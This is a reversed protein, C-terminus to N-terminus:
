PSPSPSHEIMGSPAPSHEMMGSPESSHEMMGSAAPSAVPPTATAGAPTTCAAFGIALTVAMPAFYRLRPLNSRRM